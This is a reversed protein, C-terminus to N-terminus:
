VMEKWDFIYVPLRDPIKISILEEGNKQVLRNEEWQYVTKKKGKTHTLEEFGYFLFQHDGVAVTRSGRIKTTIGQNYKLTIEDILKNYEGGIITLNEEVEDTTALFLRGPTKELKDVFDNPMVYILAGEIHPYHDTNAKIYNKDDGIIVRNYVLFALLVGTMMLVINIIVVPTTPFNLYLFYAAVIFPTVTLLMLVFATFKKM